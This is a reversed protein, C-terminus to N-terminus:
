WGLEDFYEFEDYEESWPSEDMHYCNNGTLHDCWDFEEEGPCALIGCAGCFTMGDREIFPEDDDLDIEAIEDEIQEAAQDFKIAELGDRVFCSLCVPESLEGFTDLRQSLPAGCASCITM